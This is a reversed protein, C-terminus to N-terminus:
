LRVLVANGSRQIVRPQTEQATHVLQASLLAPDAPMSSPHGSRPPEWILADPFPPPPLVVRACAPHRTLGRRPSQAPTSPRFGHSPLAGEWVAVAQLPMSSRPPVPVPTKCTKHLRSPIVLNAGRTRKESSSRMCGCESGVEGGPSHGIRFFCVFM